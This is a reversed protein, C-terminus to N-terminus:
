DRSGRGQQGSAASGAASAGAGGGFSGTLRAHSKGQSCRFVRIAREAAAGAEAEDSAGAVKTGHLALARERVPQSLADGRTVTIRARRSPYVVHAMHSFWGVADSLQSAWDIGAGNLDVRACGEAHGGPNCFPLLVVAEPFLQRAVRVYRSYWDVVRQFNRRQQAFDAVSAMLGLAWLAGYKCRVNRVMRYVAGSYSLGRGPLRRDLLDLPLPLHLLHIM